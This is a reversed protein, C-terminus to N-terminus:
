MGASNHLYQITSNLNGQWCKKIFTVYVTKLIPTKQDGQSFTEMKPIESVRVIRLNPWSFNTGQRCFSLLSPLHKLILCEVKAFVIEENEQIKGKEDVFVEIMNKCGYLKLLKLQQLYKATSLSFLKTLGDCEIIQLSALNQFVPVHPEKNWVNMLSPLCILSFEILEPLIETADHDPIDELDFVETLQVCGEVTFNKLKNFKILMSSPIVNLLNNSKNLTLVEM